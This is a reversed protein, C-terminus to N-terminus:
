HATEVVAARFRAEALGALIGIVAVILTAVELLRALTLGGVIPVQSAMQSHDMGPMASGSILAANYFVLLVVLMEIWLTNRFRQADRETRLRQAVILKHYGALAVAIVVVGVKALLLRGYGPALLDELTLVHTSTLLLGSGATLAVAAMGLPSFRQILRSTLLVGDAREELADGCLVLTILGGSWLAGGILHAVDVLVARLGIDMAAAHSTRAISIHILVGCLLALSLQLRRNKLLWLLMLLLLGLAIRVVAMQGFAADLLLARWEDVSTWDIELGSMQRALLGASTIVCVLAAIRLLKLAENGVLVFVDAPLCRRAILVLAVPAGTLLMTAVYLAARLIAEISM